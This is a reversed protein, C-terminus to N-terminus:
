KFCCLTLPMPQWHLSLFIKLTTRFIFSLRIPKSHLPTFLSWKWKPTFYGKLFQHYPLMHLLLNWNWIFATRRVRVRNLPDKLFTNTKEFIEFTKM